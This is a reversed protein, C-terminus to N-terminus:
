WFGKAANAAAIHIKIVVIMAGELARGTLRFIPSFLSAIRMTEPKQRLIIKQLSIPHLSHIQNLVAIFLRAMIDASLNLSGAGRSASLGYRQIVEVM